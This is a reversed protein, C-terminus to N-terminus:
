CKAHHLSRSAQDLVIASRVREEADVQLRPAQRTRRLTSSLMAPDQFRDGAAAQMQPRTPSM